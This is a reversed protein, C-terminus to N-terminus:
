VLSLQGDPGEEHHDLVSAPRRAAAPVPLLGATRLDATGIRPGAALRDALARRRPALAALLGLVTILELLQSTWEPPWAAPVGVADLTGPAPVGTRAAFWADLVRVGDARFDWAGRPVPAIRGDGVCLTEQGADYALERPRGPLPVRVYPRRGGPLRPRTGSRAGRTQADVIRGGLEVGDDWVEGSAPLPVASGRAAPVAAAAVWALLGAATVPRGLREALLDLLGPACNPERGGPRRFLPRVRGARGAASRGDPLVASVVVEGGADVVHFQAADAVRWLEPRAADILRHDPILLGPDYGGRLLPVPEPCPGDETAFRTTATRRGPLQAVRSGTTRTRTPGFLRAREAPDGCGALAEWRARLTRADPAAVWSRGLRLPGTSWPMLDDLSPADDRVARVSM